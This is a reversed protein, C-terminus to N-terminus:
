YEAYIFVMYFAPLFPLAFLSLCVDASPSEYLNGNSWTNLIPKINKMVGIQYRTRYRVYKNRCSVM